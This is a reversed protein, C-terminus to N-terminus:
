LGGGVWLSDKVVSTVRYMVNRYQLSAVRAKIKHPSFAFICMNIVFNTIILFERSM